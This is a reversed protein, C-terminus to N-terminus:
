TSTAAGDSEARKVACQSGALFIAVAQRVRKELMPKSPPSRFGVLVGLHFEGITMGFLMASMESLDDFQANRRAAITALCAELRSKAKRFRNQHFVRSLDPSHTYEAMILRIIALQDASLLFKALALLHEVLIRQESWDPQPTPYVLLTQYHDLLTMFLEAKSSILQYVTKKSMGAAQAVDDMTASHYGKALFIDEAAEILTMVKAADAAGSSRSGPRGRYGKKM